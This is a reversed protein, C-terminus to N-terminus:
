WYKILFFSILVACHEANGRETDTVFRAYNFASASSKLMNELLFQSLLQQNNPLHQVFNCNLNFGYFALIQFLKEIRFGM